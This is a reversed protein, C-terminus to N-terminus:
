SASIHSEMRGVEGFVYRYKEWEEVIGSTTCVAVFMMRILCCEVHKRNNKTGHYIKTLVVSAMSVLKTSFEVFSKSVYYM